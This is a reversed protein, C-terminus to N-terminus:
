EATDTPLAPDAPYSAQSQRLSLAARLTALERTAHDLIIKVKPIYDTDLYKIRAEITTTDTQM